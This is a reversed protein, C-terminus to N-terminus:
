AFLEVHFRSEAQPLLLHPPMAINASHKQLLRVPLRPLRHRPSTILGRDPGLAVFLEAAFSSRSRRRSHNRRSLHEFMTSDRTRPRNRSSNSVVSGRKSM